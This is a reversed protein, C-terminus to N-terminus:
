EQYKVPDKRGVFEWSEIRELCTACRGCAEGKENPDYCSNTHSYVFDIDDELGMSILSDIGAKLLEGKQKTVFPTEYNIRESGWNSIEFCHRAAEQSEPRCDPYISFDNAHIGLAITVNSDTRKSWALAKGYIISSFIINRNEVVTVKQNVSNYAEDKPIEGNGCLASASENFADTLDIIQYSIPLGKSALFDVLTRARDLEISHNQGYKFGYGKVEYGKALYYLALSVSDQGGSLSIVARNVSFNEAM